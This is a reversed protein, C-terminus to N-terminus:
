LITPIGSYMLNKYIGGPHSRLNGFWTSNTLKLTVANEVQIGALDNMIATSNNVFVNSITNLAFGDGTNSASWSTNVTIVGKSVLVIGHYGAVGGGNGRSVISNITIAPKVLLPSGENHVVLGEGGNYITELGTVTVVGNSIINVGSYGNSVPNWQDLIPDYVQNYGNFVALNQGLTNLMTVSGSGGNANILRVGHYRNNNTIIANTTISGIVDVTIGYSQNNNATIKNLIVPILSVTDNRQWVDIGYAGNDNGQLGNVTVASQTVIYLGTSTNNNATFDTILIPATGASNTSFLQIGIANNVENGDQDRGSNTANVKTLTMKGGAQIYVGGDINNGFWNYGAAPGNFTVIGPTTIYAGYGGNNWGGVDTLTVAGAAVLHIGDQSSGNSHVNFLTVAGDTSLSLGHGNASYNNINVNSITIASLGTGFTNNVYYGRGTNGDQNGSNVTVAGKSEIYAADGDNNFYSINTLSVGPTGVTADRNIVLLGGDSSDSLELNKLTVLGKSIVAVNVGSNNSNWRNTVNTITVGGTGATNDVYIGNASCNVCNRSTPAADTFLKLDYPGGNWGSNSGVHIIYEDNDVLILTITIIGDSEVISTPNVFGNTNTVYAWPNFRGSTVEITVEDGSLGDFFWTQDDSLTDFVWDGYSIEFHNPSNTDAQSDTITVIGKSFVLLGTMGNRSTEVNTITVAKGAATSLMPNNDIIAGNQHNNNASGNKWVVAGSSDVNLGYNGNWDFYADTLTVGGAGSSNQLTAGNWDNGNARVKTLTINGLSGIQIGTSLNGALNDWYNSTGSFTVAGSPSTTNISIGNGDNDRAQFFAVTVAGRSDINLGGSLNNSFTNGETCFYSGCWSGLQKLMVAATGGTNDINVGYGGFPPDTNEQFYNNSGYINTLTVAGNTRIRLGDKFNWQFENGKGTTANVTVGASGALNNLYAGYGDNGNASINSLTILGKSFIRIGDEDSNGDTVHNNDFWSDSITVAAGAIAGPPINDIDLGAGQNDTITVKSVTVAGRSLIQLGGQGNNWYGNMFGAPALVNVTVTPLATTPVWSNDIYGGLLGNDHSDLNTVTVPGISWIYYGNGGNNRTENFLGTANTITTASTSINSIYIGDSGSDSVKMGTLTIVGRGDVYIGYAANGPVDLDKLTIAAFGPSDSTMVFFGNQQNWGSYVNTISVAGKAFVDFGNEGNGSASATKITVTGAGPNDCLSDGDDWDFCSNVALGSMGNSDTHTHVSSFSTNAYSMIGRLDNDNAQINELIVSNADIYLGDGYDDVEGSEDNGDFISNKVTVASYWSSIGAGDGRNDSASVGLLTVPGQGWQINLGTYNPSQGVYNDFEDYVDDYYSIGDNVNLLNNDFTSNTIKLNTTYVIRAGSYGNNSANVRNLEVPGTHDIIFGSSDEGAATANVDTFKLTGLNMWAWIAADDSATNNNVTLNEVSFGNIFNYIYLNGNIVIEDSTGNKGVIAVLGKVGNVSGNVWVSENYTDPEIYLKKDTPTLSNTEMYDLADQIPNLSEVCYYSTLMACTTGSGQRLFRFINSGVQFWPDGTAILESSTLSVLSVAEGSTDALVVGADVLTEALSPEEAPIEVVPAPEATAEIIPAVETPPVETPVAEMPLVEAPAETPVVEPPIEDQAFAPSVFLFAAMFAILVCIPLATLFGKRTM